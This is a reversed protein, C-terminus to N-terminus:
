VKKWEQIQADTFIHPVHPAGGAKPAIMTGETILLTGPTSARQSYYELALDGHVHASDARYRTLPALVIRHALTIRGVKVSQFLKSSSSSSM